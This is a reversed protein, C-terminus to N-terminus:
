AVFLFERDSVGTVETIFMDLKECWQFYVVIGDRQCQTLLTLNWHTRQVILMFHVCLHYVAVTLHV